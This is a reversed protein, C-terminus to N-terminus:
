PRTPQCYDAVLEDSWGQFGDVQHPDLKEASRAHTRGLFTRVELTVDPAHRPLLDCDTVDYVLGVTISERPGITVPGALPAGTDIVDLAHEPGVTIATLELGPIPAGAGVFRVPGAADNTVEIVATVQDSQASRTAWALEDLDVRPVLAGFVISAVSLVGVLGVAGMAWRYRRGTTPRTPPTPRTSSDDDSDLLPEATDTM